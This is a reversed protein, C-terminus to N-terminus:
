NTEINSDHQPRYRTHRVYSYLYNLIIQRIPPKTGNPPSMRNGQHMDGHVLNSAPVEQLQELAEGLFGPQNQPWAMAIVM